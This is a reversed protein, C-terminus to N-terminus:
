WPESQMPYSSIDDLGEELRCTREFDNEYNIVCAYAEFDVTETVPRLLRGLSIDPDIQRVFVDMVLMLKDYSRDKLPQRTFERDKVFLFTFHNRPLIKGEPPEVLFYGSHGKGDLERTTRKRYTRLHAETFAVLSGELCGEFTDRLYVKCLKATVGDKFIAEM